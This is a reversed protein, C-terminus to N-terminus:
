FFLLRSLAVFLFNFWGRCGWSCVLSCHIFGPEPLLVQCFFVLIDLQYCWVSRGFFHGSVAALVAALGGTSHVVTRLPPVVGAHVFALAMLDMLWHAPLSLWFRGTWHPDKMHCLFITQLASSQATLVSCSILGYFASRDGPAYIGVSFVVHEERDCFLDVDLRGHFWIQDM